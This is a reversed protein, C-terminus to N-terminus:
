VAPDKRLHCMKTNFSIYETVRSAHFLSVTAKGEWSKKGEEGKLRAFCFHDRGQLSCCGVPAKLITDSVWLGTGNIPSQIAPSVKSLWATMEFCCPVRCTGFGSMEYCLSSPGTGSLFTLEAAKDLLGSDPLDFGEEQLDTGTIETGGCRRPSVRSDRPAIFASSGHKGQLVHM